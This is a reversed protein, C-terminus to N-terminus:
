RGSPAEARALDMQPPRMDFDSFKARYVVLNEIVRQIYNRTESIPIREVWDIPDIEKRRPDGYADIWEKVRKGGANYAAFTLIYSGKHEGLLTGLHAAGLQANFAPESTMRRPDFGVGAQRATHRATSAIMQMLGMAGASSVAKSDFASEQRAIAYVIARSASGPLAAFQPVGYGPFACDDIAVGRYSALKGLALSMRADRQRAAVQALAAVQAESTLRKAAEAALPAAVEKENVAFLLEVARVAEARADGEAPPPPKRLPTEAVGLKARALQGYYTTSHAAAREFRGRAKEIDEPAGFAELARGQWYAARSKQIPTEAVLALQDFHRQAKVADGLFRLAIWGAHFEAEVKASTTRAAHQACLIYATAPDGRDLLKRALLRRETWWADGDVIREPERPAARMLAAAESIKEALRLTHIRAFVIGPDNQVAPPLAAFTKENASEANAAVRARALAAIDKGALQAARMAAGNKEEYLLRDARYKHDAASLSGGFEKKVAAELSENIDEERWVERALAGAGATDGDHLLVRALATKGAPTLPKYSAFYAKVAKDPHKDGFLAEEARRRLWDAAPWGPHGAIFRSLREFGAERPFLRLGAWRAATAPLPQKIATAAQEGAAFDHTKFSALARSFAESDEGLLAAPDLPAPEPAITQDPRGDTPAYAVLPSGASLEGARQPPPAPQRGRGFVDRMADEISGHGSAWPAFPALLSSLGHGPAQPAAMTALGVAAFGFFAFRAAGKHRSTM